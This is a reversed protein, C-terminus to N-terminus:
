EHLAFLLFLLELYSTGPKWGPEVVALWTTRFLHSFRQSGRTKEGTFLPSAWEVSPHLNVMIGAYASLLSCGEMCPCERGAEGGQEGPRGRTTGEEGDLFSSLTLFLGGGVGVCM